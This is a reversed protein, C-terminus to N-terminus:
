NLCYTVPVRMYEGLGFHACVYIASPAKTASFGLLVPRLVHVVKQGISLYEGVPCELHKYSLSPHM